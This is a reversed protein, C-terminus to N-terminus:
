NGSWTIIISIKLTGKMYQRNLLEMPIYGLLAIFAITTAIEEFTKSM